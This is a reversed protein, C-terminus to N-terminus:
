KKKVAKSIKDLKVVILITFVIFWIFVVWGLLYGMSGMLYGQNSYFPCWM